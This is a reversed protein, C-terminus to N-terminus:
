SGDCGGCNCLQTCALNAKVCKCRGKCTTKCGCKILEYCADKVQPLDTWHPVWNSEDYKWGWHEPSPLMPEKLLTKGWILAGQYVARKVHQILCAQTPPINELSRSKKSFLELRARNIEKHNSTRDYLLVTYREIVTMIDASMSEPNAMLSKLSSTLDPFVNWVDWATKKGRGAFFSVTDCGTLAHFLPLVSAKERGLVEAIEHAPIYTIQKASGHSVWLEELSLLPAISICLVVVDTDNSRVKIKQHGSVSADLVHLMMRTDAEEHSCPKLINMEKNPTTTLVNNGHTSNIEKGFPVSISTM